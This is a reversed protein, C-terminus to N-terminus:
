QEISQRRWFYEPAPEFLDGSTSKSWRDCDVWALKEFSGHQKREGERIMERERTHRIGTM